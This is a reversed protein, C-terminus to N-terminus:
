SKVMLWIVLGTAFTLIITGAILAHSIRPWLVATLFTTLRSHRPANIARLLNDRAELYRMTAEDHERKACAKTLAAPPLPRLCKGCLIPGDGDGARIPGSTPCGPCTDSLHPPSCSVADLKESLTVYSETPTISM